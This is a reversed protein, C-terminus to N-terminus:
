LALLASRIQNARGLNITDRGTLPSLLSGGFFASPTGNANVSLLNWTTTPLSGTWAGSGAAVGDIVLYATSGVTYLGIFHQGGRIDVGSSDIVTQGVKVRLDGATTVAVYAGNSSGDQTGFLIQTAAISAPIDAYDFAFLDGSGSLAYTSTLRDDSGDGKVGNAQRTPKFNSTSQSSPRGPIIKASYSILTASAGGSTGPMTSIIQNSGSATAFLFYQGANYTAAHGPAVVYMSGAGSTEFEVLLVDGSSHTLTQEIRGRNSSDTFSLVAAGSSADVTGTGLSSNTWGTLDNTSFSGNSVLQPQTEKLAAYTKGSWARSDLSFGVAEGIDDALVQGAPSQWHRDTKSFDFWFGRDLSAMYSGLNFRGGYRQGLGLTGLGLSLPGSM